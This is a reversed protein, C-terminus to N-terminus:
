QLYIDNLKLTTQMLHFEQHKEYKNQNLVTNENFIQEFAKYIHDIKPCFAGMKKQDLFAQILQSKAM